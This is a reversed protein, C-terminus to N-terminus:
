RLRADTRFRDLRQEERARSVPAWRRDCAEIEANRSATMFARALIGLM